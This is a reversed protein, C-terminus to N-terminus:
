AMIVADCLSLLNYYFGGKDAAGGALSPGGGDRTSRRAFRAYDVPMNMFTYVFTGTTYM